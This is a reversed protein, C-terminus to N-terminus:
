NHYYRKLFNVFHEAGAMGSDHEHWVGSTMFGLTILVMYTTNRLLIVVHLQNADNQRPILPSRMLTVQLQNVLRPSDSKRFHGMEM